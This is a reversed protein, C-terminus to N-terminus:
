LIQRELKIEQAPQQAQVFYINRCGGGDGCLVKGGACRQSDPDVAGMQDRVVTLGRLRWFPPGNGIRVLKQLPGELLDGSIVLHDYQTVDTEHGM